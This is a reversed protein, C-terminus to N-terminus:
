QWSKQEEWEMGMKRSKYLVFRKKEMEFELYISAQLNRSKTEAPIFDLMEKRIKPDSRSSIWISVSPGEELSLGKGAGGGFALAPYRETLSALLSEKIKEGNRVNIMITLWPWLIGWILLGGVCVTTVAIRSRSPM